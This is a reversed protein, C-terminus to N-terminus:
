LALKSFTNTWPQEKELETIRRVLKAVTRALDPLKKFVVTSRLYDNYPIAPSGFFRGGETKISNMIGSQAQFQSGDAIVLHGAFGVQGGVRCHAGIKTSGAVGSQAAIVTHPGIEVNHGIQILNDLKVGQGIVTAGMTARDITCNAGIEVDDKLITIGVQPVKTYSQDEQPAFGFGDSGIVTNSHIVCNDGIECDHMIRVGPYFRCNKGIKVRPGVYVQDLIISGDGIIADNEVISFKGIRVKNGLTASDSVIAQTSVQRKIEQESETNFVALLQGVASYVENVRILTANIPRRPLFDLPVLLASATTDYAFNEYKMNGLFSISGPGAEEIKAPRNILVNGDGDVEGNVLDALQNASLQMDAFTITPAPHAVSFSTQFYM